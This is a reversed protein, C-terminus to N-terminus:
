FTSANFRQLPLWWSYRKMAEDSLRKLERAIFQGGELILLHLGQRDQARDGQGQHCATTSVGEFLCGGLIHFSLKLTSDRTLAV